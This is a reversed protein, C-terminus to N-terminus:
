STAQWSVCLQIYRGSNKIELQFFELSIPSTNKLCIRTVTTNTSDNHPSNDLFIYDKLNEYATNQMEKPSAKQQTERNLSKMKKHM